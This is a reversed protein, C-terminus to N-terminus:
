IYFFIYLFFSFVYADKALVLQIIRDCAEFSGIEEGDMTVNRKVDKEDDVEVVRTMGRALCPNGVIGQSTEKSSPIRISAMFDVLSHVHKRAHMLGYGLYSHQYLVHSRGGFKLDYKHEGPELRQDSSSFMPEFVIQTSAGGLDLVAYTPTDKPTDAKITGLLYNATIWAYVGEDKGDMITVGDKELMKFPYSGHIREEVAHLIDASQSGPLLRLGATAKVAVPTCSRMFSPVVRIAEDLLVDLSKAAEEPKGAYSSLGRLTMKFVEYEYEPSAGCNNFKYIHIRSGTSGADIMLAYQVLPDGPSYPATCYTTKTSDPDTEYSEPHVTPVAPIADHIPTPPPTEIDDASPYDPAPPASLLSLNNRYSFLLARSVLNNKKTLGVSKDRDM